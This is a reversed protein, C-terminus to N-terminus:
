TQHWIFTVVLFINSAVHSLYIVKLYAVVKLYALLRAWDVKVSVLHSSSKDM